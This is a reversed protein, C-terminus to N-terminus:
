LPVAEALVQTRLEPRLASDPVLDVPVGVLEAIHSELRGLALLSLPKGMTFLLDIDSSDHDTGTAVSGFVRANRGGADRVLRRV